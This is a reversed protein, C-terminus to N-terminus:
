RPTRARQRRALVALPALWWLAPLTPASPDIACGGDGDDSGSEPIRIILQAPPGLNGGADRVRVTVLTEGSPFEAAKAIRGCFQAEAAESACGQDGSEFLVCGESCPRSQPVNEGDVFRCGLDNFADCIAPDDSLDPPDVAPVGGDDPPMTDCVRSSGDGLPRSVQIQLDPCGAENFTSPGITRSSPGRAAEVVLSFGSGFPRDYIPVGDVNTETPEQMTDASRLVGFFVITPGQPTDQARGEVAWGALALGVPVLWRIRRM